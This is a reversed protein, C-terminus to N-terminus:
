SKEEKFLKECIIGALYTLSAGVVFIETAYKASALVALLTAGGGVLITIQKKKDVTMNDEKEFIRATHIFMRGSYNM